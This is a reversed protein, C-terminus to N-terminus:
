SVDLPNRWNLILCKDSMFVVTIADSPYLEIDM